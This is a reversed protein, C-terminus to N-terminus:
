LLPKGKRMVKVARRARKRQAITTRYTSKRKPKGTKKDLDFGRLHFRRGSM